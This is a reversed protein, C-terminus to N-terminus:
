IKSNLYNNIITGFHAARGDWSNQRAFEIRQNIKDESDTKIEFSILSAMTNTNSVVSVLDTFEDLNAFPTMVVPVGVALFENIKLPYINKNAENVLYPIIGVDFSQLLKPVENPGIPPYLEVNSYKELRNKISTSRLDGIFKFVFNPLSKIATEVTDIDFRFDLSGIYGIINKERKYPTSKSFKEFMPFDVGNKVVYFNPNNKSKINKLSDSTTIVLDVRKILSSETEFIRDGFHRSDVADYCYYIHCTETLKGDCVLGYFPNYATILIPNYFKLRNIAKKITKIYKYANYRFLFKFLKENKLFYLPLVPPVTLNYVMGGNLTDIEELKNNIGLMKMVPAQQKGLFSTVIDKFTYPHEVFLIRNEVALRSLIQVTSKTYKGRWSTNSICIIDRNKLM